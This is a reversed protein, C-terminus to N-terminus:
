GKSYSKTKNTSFNRKINELRISFGIPLVAFLYYKNYLPRYKIRLLPIGCFLIRALEFNEKVKILDHFHWHIYVQWGRARLLKNLREFYSNGDFTIQNRDLFEIATDYIQAICTPHQEYRLAFDFWVFFYLNFLWSNKNLMNNETLYNYLCIAIKLHDLSIGSCQNFTQGMTSDAHRIYTYKKDQIYFAKKSCMAYLTYFYADEFRLGEPFLIKYKDIISKRFIKNCPSMDTKRIINNNVHKKGRFKIRYYENDTKQIHKLTNGVVQIGFCVYDIDDTMKSVATAYADPLLIDDSDMFAILDANAVALGKNRASSQGANEQTIIRIRSDRNAYESLIRPSSDTSGDDVCIIEIDQLTQNIVSDLTAQLYKEVNYVPIIVSLKVSM